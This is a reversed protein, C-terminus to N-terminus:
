DFQHTVRFDKYARYGTLWGPRAEQELMHLLTQWCSWRAQFGPDALVGRIVEELYEPNDLRFTTMDALELPPTEHGLMDEIHEEAYQALLCLYRRHRQTQTSGEPYNQERESPNSIVQITYPTPRNMWAELKEQLQELEDVRAPHLLASKRADAVRRRMSEQLDALEVFTLVKNEADQSTDM